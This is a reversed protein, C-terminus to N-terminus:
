IVGTLIGRNAHGREVFGRGPAGRGENLVRLAGCGMQEPDYYRGFLFRHRIDLWNTGAQIRAM